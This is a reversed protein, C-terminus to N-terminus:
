KYMDSTVSYSFSYKGNKDRYLHAFVTKNEKLLNLDTNSRIKNAEDKILIDKVNTTDQLALDDTMITYYYQLINASVVSTSDFRTYEDIMKPCHKNTEKSVQVLTNHFSSKQDTCQQMPILITIGILTILISSKMKM